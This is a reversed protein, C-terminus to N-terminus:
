LYLESFHDTESNLFIEKQLLLITKLDKLKIDNLAIKEIKYNLFLIKGKSHFPPM